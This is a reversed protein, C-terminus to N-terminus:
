IKVLETLAIGAKPDYLMHILGQYCEVLDKGNDFELTGVNSDILHYKQNKTDYRMFIAHSDSYLKFCRNEPKSEKIMQEFSQVFSEINAFGKFPTEAFRNHLFKPMAHTRDVSNGEGLSLNMQYTAQHSRDQPFIRDSGYNLIDVQPDELAKIAMRHTFAYCVGQGLCENDQDAKGQQFEVRLANKYKRYWAIKTEFSINRNSFSTKKTAAEVSKSFDEISIGPTLKAKIFSNLLRNKCTQLSAEYATLIFAKGEESLDEISSKFTEMQKNNYKELAEYVVPLMQLLKETYHLKESPVGALTLRAILGHTQLEAKIEPLKRKLIDDNQLMKTITGTMLAHIEQHDEYKSLDTYGLGLLGCREVYDGRYGGKKKLENALLASSVITQLEAEKEATLPYLKRITELDFPLIGLLLQERITKLNELLIKRTETPNENVQRVCDSFLSSHQQTSLSTPTPNFHPESATRLSGESHTSESPHLLTILKNIKQRYVVLENDNFGLDNLKNNLLRVSQSLQRREELSSKAEIRNVLDDLQGLLATKYATKEVPSLSGMTFNSPQIPSTRPLPEKPLSPPSDKPLSPRSFMSALFASNLQYTLAM